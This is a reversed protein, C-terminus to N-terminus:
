ITYDVVTALIDDVHKDSNTIYITDSSTADTVDNALFVRGGHVYKVMISKLRGDKEKLYEVFGMMGKRPSACDCMEIFYEKDDSNACKKVIPIIASCPRQGVLRDYATIDTEDSFYESKAQVNMKKLFGLNKWYSMFNDMASIEGLKDAFLLSSVPLDGGGGVDLLYGDRTVESAINVFKKRNRIEFKQLHRTHRNIAFATDYAVLDEASKSGHQRLVFNNIKFYDINQMVFQYFELDRCSKVNFTDLFQDVNDVEEELYIEFLQDIYKPNRFNASYCYQGSKLEEELRLRTSEKM